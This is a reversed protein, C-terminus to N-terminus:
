RTRRLRTITDCAYYNGRDRDMLHTSWCESCFDGCCMGCQSVRSAVTGCSACTYTPPPQKTLYRSYKEDLLEDPGIALIGISHPDHQRRCVIWDPGITDIQWDGFMSDGGNPLSHSGDMICDYLIAGPKLKAM